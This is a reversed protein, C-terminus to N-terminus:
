WKNIKEAQGSSRYGNRPQAKLGMADMPSTYKGVNVMSILWIYAFIGYMSPIPFISILIKEQLYCGRIKPHRGLYAM